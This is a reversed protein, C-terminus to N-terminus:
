DPPPNKPPLQKEGFRETPPVSEDLGRSHVGFPDNQTCEETACTADLKLEVHRVM